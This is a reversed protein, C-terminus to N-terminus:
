GGGGEEGGDGGETRRNIEWVGLVNVRRLRRRMVGVVGRWGTGKIVMENLFAAAKALGEEASMLSDEHEISLVYDYGFM